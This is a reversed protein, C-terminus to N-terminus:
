DWFEKLEQEKKLKEEEVHQKIQIEEESEQQLEQEQSELLEAREKRAQLIKIKIKEQAEKKMDDNFNMGEISLYANNIEEEESIEVIPEDEEITRNDEEEFSVDDIIQGEQEISNEEVEIPIIDNQESKIEIEEVVKPVDELVSKSVVKLDKKKEKNKKKKPEKEIQVQQKLAEFEAMINEYKEFDMLLFSPKGDRLIIAKEIDKNIVKDFIMKSKRILETASFMENSKYLLLGM